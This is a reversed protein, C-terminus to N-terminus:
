WGKIDSLEEWARIVWETRISHGGDHLCLELMGGGCSVQRCVLLADRRATNPLECGGQQEWQALSEYLDSQRHIGIGRGRIPVTRDATGHVHILVPVPSPCTEPVPDWYAGAVPAFGAFRAGRYCALNWVMSAGVSFGSVMIRDMEIPFRAEVDALVADVFAFEDRDRSPSGPFSWSKDVGQPAIVAIGRAAAQGLLSGNRMVGEATGQWPHFFLIAPFPGAGEPLAIRYTGGEVVCDSDKGCAWLAQPLLLLILILLRM